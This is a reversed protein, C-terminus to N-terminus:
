ECASLELEFVDPPSVGLSPTTSASTSLSSPFFVVRTYDFFVEWSTNKQPVKWRRVHNSTVSLSYDCIIKSTKNSFHMKELIEKISPIGIIYFNFWEKKKKSKLSFLPLIKQYITYQLFYIKLYKEIFAWGFRAHSFLFTCLIGVVHPPSDMEWARIFVASSTIATILELNDGSWLFFLVGSSITFATVTNLLVDGSRFFRKASSLTICSIAEPSKLFMNGSLSPLIWILLVPLLIYTTASSVFFKEGLRRFIIKENSVFPWINTSCLICGSREWSSLLSLNKWYWKDCLFTFPFLWRSTCGWVTGNGSINFSSWTTLFANLSVYRPTSKWFREISLHIFSIHIRAVYLQCTESNVIRLFTFMHSITSM